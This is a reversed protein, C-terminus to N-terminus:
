HRHGCGRPIKLIFRHAGVAQGAFGMEPPQIELRRLAPDDIEAMATFIGGEGQNRHDPVGPQLRRVKHPLAAIAQQDATSLPSHSLLKRILISLPGLEMRTRHHDMWQSLRTVDSSM